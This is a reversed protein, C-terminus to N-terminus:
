AASAARPRPSEQLAPAPAPFVQRVGPQRRLWDLAQNLEGVLQHEDLHARRAIAAERDGPDVKFSTLRFFFEVDLAVCGAAALRAALNDYFPTRGFHDNVILVGPGQGSEPRALLGPMHEGSSLPVSVEDRQVEPMPQGAPVEPHCM